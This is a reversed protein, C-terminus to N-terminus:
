GISTEAHSLLCTINNTSNVSESKIAWMSISHIYNEKFVCLRQGVSICLSVPASPPLPPPHAFFAFFYAFSFIAFLECSRIISFISCYTATFPSSAFVCSRLSAFSSSSTFSTSCNFYASSARTYVTCAKPKMPITHSHTEADIEILYLKQM